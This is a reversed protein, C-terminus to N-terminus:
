NTTPPLDKKPKKAKKTKKATQKKISSKKRTTTLEGKQLLLALKELNLSEKIEIVEKKSRKAQLKKVKKQCKKRKKKLDTITEIAEKLDEECQDDVRNSQAERIQTDKQQLMLIAHDLEEELKKIQNNDTGSPKKAEQEKLSAELETAKSKWHKIEKEQASTIIEPLATTKKLKSIEESKKRLENKADNTFTNFRSLLEQLAAKDSRSELELHNLRAKNQGQLLWALLAGGIAALTYYILPSLSM